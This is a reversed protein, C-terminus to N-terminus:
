PGKLPRAELAKADALDRELHKMGDNVCAERLERAERAAQLAESAAGQKERVLALNYLATALDNRM